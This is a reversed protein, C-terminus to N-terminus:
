LLLLAALLGAATGAANILVDALSGFRGPVRAQYWELIGGLGVTLVFALALRLPRPEIRALTWAWMWALVAYVVFHMLKQVTPPTIAVLWAFGSDGNRAQGPTISLIVVLAVFAATILWRLAFPVTL